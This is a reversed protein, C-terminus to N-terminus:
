SLFEGSRRIWGKLLDLKTRYDRMFARVPAHTLAVVVCHELRAKLVYRYLERHNSIALMAERTYRGAVGDIARAAGNPHRYLGQLVLGRQLAKVPDDLWSTVSWDILLTKLPEAVWGDFPTVHREWYFGHIQAPTLADLEDRSAPRGLHLWDGCAAQTLGARTWGGHDAPHTTAPGAGGERRVIEAIIQEHTRM